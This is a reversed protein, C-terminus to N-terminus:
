KIYPAIEFRSKGLALWQRAALKDTKEFEKYEEAIKTQKIETINDGAVSAFLHAFCESSYALKKNLEEIQKSGFIEVLHPLDETPTGVYRGGRLNGEEDVLLQIKRENNEVESARRKLPVWQLMILRAALLALDGAWEEFNLASRAAQHAKKDIGYHLLKYIERIFSTRNQKLFHRMVHEPFQPLCTPRSAEKLAKNNSSYVADVFMRWQELSLEMQQVYGLVTNGGLQGEALRAATLADSVFLTFAAAGEDLRGSTIWHETQSRFESVLDHWENDEASSVAFLRERLKSFEFTLWDQQSPEEFRLMKKLDPKLDSM